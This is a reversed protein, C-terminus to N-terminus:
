AVKDKKKKPEKPPLTSVFALAREVWMLLDDDRKIGELAIDVMGGMRRGTRDFPLAHPHKLAEAEAEKGVRAMMGTKSACCVMNGNRYFSHGGFMRKEELDKAAAILRLRAVHEPVEKQKSM